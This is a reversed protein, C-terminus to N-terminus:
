SGITHYVLFESVHDFTRVSVSEPFRECVRDILVRTDYFFGILEELFLIRRRKKRMLQCLMCFVEEGRDERERERYIIYIERKPDESAGWLNEEM